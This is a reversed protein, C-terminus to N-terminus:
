YGVTFRRRIYQPNEVEDLMAVAFDEQSIRSDGNGDKLLEDAAIRFQGTREGPAIIISPCVFSWDLDSIERIQKLAEVAPAAEAKIEEPFGPTDLLIVGPEVELSAAGGVVLVRKVGAQRCANYVHQVNCQNHKVSVIVADHGALIQALGAEDAIDCEAPTVNGGGELKDTHRVIGTVQHGRQVAEHLIRSGINGTAGILAIKM